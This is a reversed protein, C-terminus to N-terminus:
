RPHTWDFRVLATEGARVRHPRLATTGVSGSELYNPTGDRDDDIALGIAPHINAVGRPIRASSAPPAMVFSLQQPGRLFPVM